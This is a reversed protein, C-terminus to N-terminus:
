CSLFQCFIVGIPRTNWEMPKNMKFRLIPCSMVKNKREMAEMKALLWLKLVSELFMMRCINKVPISINMGSNVTAVSNPVTVIM